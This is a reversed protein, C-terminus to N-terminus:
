RAYEEQELNFMHHNFFQQLRENTYNICLQEFSNIEFIEFGSVTVSEILEEGVDLPLGAEGNQIQRAGILRVYAVNGVQSMSDVGLIEPPTQTEGGVAVTMRMEVGEEALIQIM